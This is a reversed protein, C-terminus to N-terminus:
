FVHGNCLCHIISKSSLRDKLLFIHISAWLPLPSDRKDKQGCSNSPMLLLKVGNVVFWDLFYSKWNELCTPSATTFYGVYKKPCKILKQPMKKTKPCMKNVYYECCILGCRLKKQEWSLHPLSNHFVQSTDEQAVALTCTQLCWSPYRM